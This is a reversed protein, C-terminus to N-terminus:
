QPVKEFSLPAGEPTTLRVNFNWGGLHQTSRVLITNVGAQLHASAQDQDLANGRDVNNEHVVEGNVWIKIGDDSGVRLLADAAEPLAVRAFGYASVDEMMGFVGMLDVLGFADDTEHQTWSLTVDGAAYTAKPDVNPEGIFTQAFGDDFRSLFPGVLSWSKIIGLQEASVGAAVLPGMAERMQETTTIRPLLLDVVEKADDARGADLLAQAVGALTGVPLTDLEDAGVVSMIIEYAEPVPFQKIGDLAFGKDEETDAIRYLALFARGAGQREGANRFTEAMRRLNERAAPKEEATCTEAFQILPPLADPLRTAALGNLAATRLLPDGHAAFETLLPLFLPNRKNGFVGLMSVQMDRPLGPFAELLAHDAGPGQLAAFAALVAPELQRGEKGPLAEILAPVVTEDGYAGLGALAAGRLRLDSFEAAATRFLSMTERWHGGRRGMINGLRIIADGADFRTIDDAARYVAWLADVHRPDGTWSLARAASARVRAEPSQLAMMLASESAPKTMLGIADLLACQFEADARPLAACLAAAANDTGIDRLATRAKERLIPNGDLLAAIPGVDFGEPVVLPLLRLGREKIPDPQEPAVLTMLLRATELRETERGPVSVINAIDELVRMAAWWVNADDSSVLPLLRSVATAGYRPLLQRAVIRAQEDGSGLGGILQDLSPEAAPVGASLLAAALLVIAVSKMTSKGRM